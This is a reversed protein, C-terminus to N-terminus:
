YLRDYKDLEWAIVESEGTEALMAAYLLKFYGTRASRANQEMQAMLLSSSSTPSLMEGDAMFQRASWRCRMIILPEHKAPVEVTGATEDFSRLATITATTDQTPDSLYLIGAEEGKTRIFDYSDAHLWFEDSRYARRTCYEPPDESEPYEVQLINGIRDTITYAYTGEAIGSVAVTVVKGFHQSYEEIAERIWTDVLADTFTAGSGDNLVDQITERLELVNM